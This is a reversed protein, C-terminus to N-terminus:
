KSVILTLALFSTSDHFSKKFNVEFEFIEREYENPIFVIFVCVTGCNGRFGYGFGSWLRCGTKLGFRCLVWVRKPPVYKYPRYLPTGGGGGGGGGGPPIFSNSAGKIVKVM